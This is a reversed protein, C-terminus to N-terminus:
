HNHTGKDPRPQGQRDRGAPTARSPEGEGYPQRSIRKVGKSPYYISDPGSGKTKISEMQEAYAAGEGQWPEAGPFSSASIHLPGTQSQQSSGRPQVRVPPVSLCRATGPRGRCCTKTLFPFQPQSLHHAMGQPHVALCLRRESRSTGERTSPPSSAVWVPLCLTIWRRRGGWQLSQCQEAVPM